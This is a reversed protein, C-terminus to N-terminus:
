QFLNDKGLHEAINDKDYILNDYIRPDTQSSQM